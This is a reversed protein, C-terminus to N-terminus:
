ISLGACPAKYQSVCSPFLVYFIGCQDCWRCKTGLNILMNLLTFMIYVVPMAHCSSLAGREISGEKRGDEGWREEGVPLVDPGGVLGARQVGGGKGRDRRRGDERTRKRCAAIWESVSIPIWTIWWQSEIQALSRKLSIFCVTTKELVLMKEM